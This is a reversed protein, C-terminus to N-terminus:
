LTIGEHACDLLSHYEKFADVQFKTAFNVFQFYLQAQCVKVVRLFNCVFIDNCQSFKILSHVYGLFPLIYYLYFLMDLDVLHEFNTAVQSNADMNLAMKMLLTKYEVMVWKTPSLMSDWRTKVNRLLKLGKTEMINVLKTFEVHRKPSKYFYQYLSQFLTEVGHVLPFSSSTQMALNKKQCVCHVGLSFPTFTEQIQKTMVLKVGQFVNIGNSGFAVLKAAINIHCLGKKQLLSGV